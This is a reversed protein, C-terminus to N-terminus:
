QGVRNVNGSLAEEIPPRSNGIPRATRRTEYADWSAAQRTMKEKGPIRRDLRERAEIGLDFRPRDDIPRFRDSKATKPASQATISAQRRSMMAKPVSIHGTEPCM